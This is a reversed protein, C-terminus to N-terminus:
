AFKIGVGRKEVTGINMKFSGEQKCKPCTADFGLIVINRVDTSPQPEDPRITKLEAHINCTGCRFDIYSGAAALVYIGETKM